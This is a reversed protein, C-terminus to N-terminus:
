FWKVYKQPHERRPLEAEDYTAIDGDTETGRAFIGEKKPKNRLERDSKSISSFGEKVLGLLAYRAYFM